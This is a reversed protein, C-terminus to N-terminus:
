QAILRAKGNFIPAAQQMGFMGFVIWRNSLQSDVGAPIELVTWGESYLWRIFLTAEDLVYLDEVLANDSTRNYQGMTNGPVPLVLLEGNAWAIKNVRVGPIVEVM